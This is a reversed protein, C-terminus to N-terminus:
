SGFRELAEMKLSKISSQPHLNMILHVYVSSTDYKGFEM